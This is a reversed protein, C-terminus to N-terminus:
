GLVTRFRAAGVESLPYHPCPGSGLYPWRPHPRLTGRNGDYSLFMERDRSGSWDTLLDVAIGVATSALVGNPWVVQPRGGAAGYNAAERALKEENLFGLCHMCRNGPLSIIVQGAMRPPEGQVAHVDMGIDVYPILFRRCFAELDRRGAFTDVAGLVVDCSALVEARDQWTEPFAHLENELRLGAAIRRAIVIKRTGEQADQATAGVMRNLNSWETRDHDFVRLRRAGLHLLQQVIHSGGGGMGIVGIRTNALIHEAQPGLFGQRALRENSLEQVSGPWLLAMPDGVISSGAPVVLDLEGPMRIWAYAADESLVLMGHSLDPGVNAFSEVLRPQERRDTGSFSPVGAHPHLHVHFVGRRTDLVRQMAERIAQGDIRAGVRADQIYRADNVAYYGCGLLLQDGEEGTGTAVSLFGIREEAHAHPRKLDDKMHEFLARSIRFRVAGLRLEAGKVAAIM